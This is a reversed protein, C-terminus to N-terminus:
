TKGGARRMRRIARMMIRRREEHTENLTATKLKIREELAKLRQDEEANTWRRWAADIEGQQVDGKKPM